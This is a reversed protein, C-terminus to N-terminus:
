SNKIQFIIEIKPFSKAFPGKLSISIIMESGGLNPMFLLHPLRHIFNSQFKLSEYETHLHAHPM